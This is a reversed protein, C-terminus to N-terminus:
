GGLAFSANKRLSTVGTAVRGAGEAMFAAKAEMDRITADQAALRRSLADIDLDSSLTLGGWLSLAAVVFLFSRHM